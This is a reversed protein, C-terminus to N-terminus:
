KVVFSMGTQKSGVKVRAYYLGVPLNLRFSHVGANLNGNHLSSIRVGSLNFVELRVFEGSSINLNLNGNAYHLNAPTKALLPLTPVPPNGGLYVTKIETIADGGNMNAAISFVDYQTDFDTIVLSGAKFDDFQVVGSYGNSFTQILFSRVNSATMVDKFDSSLNYSCTTWTEGAPVECFKDSDNWTWNEGSKVVLRLRFAPSSGVTRAKFTITSNNALNVTPNPYEITAESSVSEYTVQMVGNGSTVEPTYDKIKIYQEHEAALAEMGPKATAYNHTVANGAVEDNFGNYDWSLAGAYGNDYAYLYLEEPTKSEVKYASFREKNWGAASFEGIVLPKDLEWFSFPHDFPNQASNQHEPYFHLQLFDLWNKDKWYQLDSACHIGTSVLTGTSNEHIADAMKESFDVISEISIRQDTWGHNAIMGEPENFLEWTMLAPHNGIAEVVPILAKNIFAEAAADDSFLAKNATIDIKDNYLGWQNSEMLNHSFLCMSVMVGYEEAIDLAKKMNTITNAPLGTVRHTSQDIVPSQSMNNFLWWRITNGGAARIDQVAKRWKNEDLAGAGVDSNYDIWALNMGSFFIKEGKYKFQTGDVVLDPAAYIAQMLVIFFLFRKM